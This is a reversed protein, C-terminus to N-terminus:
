IGLDRKSLTAFVGWVYGSIVCGTAVLLQSPLTSSSSSAGNEYQARTTCLVFASSSMVALIAACLGSSSFCVNVIRHLLSSWLNRPELQESLLTAARVPLTHLVVHSIINAHDEMPIMYYPLFQGLVATRSSSTYNKPVGHWLQGTYIMVDGRRGTIRVHTNIAHQMSEDNDDNNNPAHWWKQSGPIVITSGNSLTFDDLMWLVQVTKPADIPPNSKTLFPAHSGYPYDIHLGQALADDDDDTTTSSYSPFITHSHFSGCKAGEGCICEIIGGLAADDLFRGFIRPSRTVLDFTRVPSDCRFLLRRLIRRPLNATTIISHALNVIDPPLFQRIIVYGDGNTLAHLIDDTRTALDM